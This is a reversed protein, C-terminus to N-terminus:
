RGIQASNGIAHQAVDHPVSLAEEIDEATIAQPASSAVLSVGKKKIGGPFELHGLYLGQAIRYYQESHRLEHIATKYLAVYDGLIVNDDSFLMERLKLKWDSRLFNGRDKLVEFYTNVKYINVEACLASIYGRFQNQRQIAKTHAGGSVYKNWQGWLLYAWGAFKELVATQHLADSMNKGRRCANFSPQNYRRRGPKASIRM